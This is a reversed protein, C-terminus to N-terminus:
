RLPAITVPRSTPPAAHPAAKKTPTVVPTPSSVPATVPAGAGPAAPLAPAAIWAYSEIMSWEPGAPVTSLWKPQNVWRRLAADYSAGCVLSVGWLTESPVSDPLPNFVGIRIVVLVGEGANFCDQITAANEPTKLEDEVQQTVGLHNLWMSLEGLGQGLLAVAGENGLLRGMPSNVTPVDIYRSTRPLRGSLHIPETEVYPEPPPNPSAPRPEPNNAQQAAREQPSSSNLFIRAPPQTVINMRDTETWEAQRQYPRSEGVRFVDLVRVRIRYGQRLKATWEKELKLFSGGEGLIRQLEKPTYSNINPNQLTLNRPDAPAGYQKGAQHSAHGGTGASVSRNAAPSSHTQVQGPVGLEGTTEQYVYNGKQWRRTVFQSSIDPKNTM